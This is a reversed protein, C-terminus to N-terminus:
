AASGGDGTEVIELARLVALAALDADVEGEPTAPVVAVAEVRNGGEPGVAVRLVPGEPAADDRLLAVLHGAAIGYVRLPLSEEAAPAPAAAAEARAERRTGFDPRIVNSMRGMM